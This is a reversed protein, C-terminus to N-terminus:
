DRRASAIFSRRHFAKASERLYLVAGYCIGGFTLLFFAPASQAQYLSALSFLFCTATKKYSWIFKLASSFPKLRAELSRKAQIESGHDRGAETVLRGVMAPPPFVIDNARNPYHARRLSIVPRGSTFNITNDPSIVRVGPLRNSRATHM